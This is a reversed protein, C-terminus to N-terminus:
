PTRGIGAPLCTDTPPDIRENKLHRWHGPRLRFEFDHGHSQFDGCVRRSALPEFSAASSLNRRRVRGHPHHEEARGRAATKRLPVAPARGTADGSVIGLRGSGTTLGGCGNADVALTPEQQVRRGIHSVLEGLEDGVRGGRDPVHGDLAHQEGVRLEIM